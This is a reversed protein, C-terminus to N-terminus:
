TMSELSYVPVYLLIVWSKISLVARSTPVVKTFPLHVRSEQEGLSIVAPCAELWQVAESAADHSDQECLPSQVTISVACM